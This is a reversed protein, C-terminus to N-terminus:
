PVGAGEAPVPELHSRTNMRHVVVWEDRYEIETIGAPSADVSWLRGPGLGLAALVMLRVVIAHTVLAVTQGAHAARLTSLAAEVRAAVDGLREAGPLVAQDPATRWREYEAPWRAAVEERSCGEGAGFGMERFAPEIRPDLGHREAVPQATARTRVLPTAYVAALTLSALAEAVMEAQWRGQATLPEDRSGTFRRQRSTETEGHRVILLRLM